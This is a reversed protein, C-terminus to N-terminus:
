NSKLSRLAEITAKAINIKNKTPSLTKVSANEVGALSLVARAAGGAVLGKGAKAPKIVVMGSSYKEKVEHPISNWKNLPISIMNKKASRAAKEIALSTDSGKGLGFGVQGKKNGLILAARFSFRRGGAVVRAVRSLDILRQEYESKEKFNRM